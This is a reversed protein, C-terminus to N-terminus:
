DWVAWDRTLLEVRKKEAELYKVIEVSTSAIWNKEIELLVKKFFGSYIGWSLVLFLFLQVFLWFLIKKKLRM